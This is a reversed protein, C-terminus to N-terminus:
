AVGITAFDAAQFHRWGLGLDDGGTGGALGLSDAVLHADL